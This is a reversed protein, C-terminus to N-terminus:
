ASPKPSFNFLFVKCLQLTNKIKTFNNKNLCFVTRGVKNGFVKSVFYPQRVTLQKENTVGVV